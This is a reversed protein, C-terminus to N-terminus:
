NKSQYDMMVKLAEYCDDCIKVSKFLFSPDSKMSMYKNTSSIGFNKCLAKTVDLFKKPNQNSDHDSDYNSSVHDTIIGDKIKGM